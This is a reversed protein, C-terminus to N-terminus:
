RRAGREALLTMYLTRVEAILRPKAFRARAFQRGARGMARRVEPERALYAVAAAAGTIDGSEVLIGNDHVVYLVRGSVDTTPRGEGVMLDPVGGVRTAVFPLAAAMAEILVVPTGENVSTLLVLDLGEYLKGQDSRWGTFDVSSELGAEKVQRELGPRLPGDGVLVLRLGVGGTEERVVRECVRVAMAHNKVPVMRGVVGIVLGQGAPRCSEAPSREIALFSGLDFGLPIVVFKRRSAIRYTRHLAAFQQDSIVVIRDTLLALLREVWLFFATKCRGFYGHFVHGHFTHVRIPVRALFAALRGLAGAKATHTHVIDPRERRFFRYLWWFAALDDLWSIERGLGSLVIPTVSYREACYSMDSEGESVRGTILCSRFTEDNLGQTLLVAHIAPGGVNLRAIVRM